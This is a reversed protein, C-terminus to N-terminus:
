FEPICQILVELRGLTPISSCAVHDLKFVSCIQNLAMARVSIVICYLSDVIHCTYGASHAKRQAPRNLSNKQSVFDMGYVETARYIFEPVSTCSTMSGKPLHIRSAHTVLAMCIERHHQFSLNSYLQWDIVFYLGLLWRFMKRM